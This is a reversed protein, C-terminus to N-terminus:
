NWHGEVGEFKEMLSGFDSEMEATYMYGENVEMDKGDVLGWCTDGDTTEISILLKKGFFNQPPLMMYLTIYEDPGATSVSTLMLDVYPVTRKPIIVPASGSIDVTEEILIPSNDRLSIRMRAYEKSAPMKLRFMLVAEMRKLRFNLAGGVPVVAGSALFQYESLHSYDNNATQEQGSFGCYIRTNSHTNFEYPYYASYQYEGSGKLAWGGGTFEAHNTGASSYMDFFAQSGVNPFIGVTDDAEWFFDIGSGFDLGARTGDDFHLPSVSIGVYDIDGMEKPEMSSPQVSCSAVVALLGTALVFSVARM